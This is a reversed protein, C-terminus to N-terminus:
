QVSAEEKIAKLDTWATPYYLVPESMDPLLDGTSILFTAEFVRQKAVFRFEVEEGPKTILLKGHVSNSFFMTIAPNELVMHGHGLARAHLM